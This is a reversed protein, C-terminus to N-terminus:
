VAPKCDVALRSKLSPHNRAAGNARITNVRLTRRVHIGSLAAHPNKHMHLAAQKNSAEWPRDAAIGQLGVEALETFHCISMNDHVAGSSLRLTPEDLKKRVKGKSVNTDM